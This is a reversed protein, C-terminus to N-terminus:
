FLKGFLELSFHGAILLSIIISILLLFNLGAVLRMITKREAHFQGWESKNERGNEHYIVREHNEKNETASEISRLAIKMSILVLVLIISIGWM